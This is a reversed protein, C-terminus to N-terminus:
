QDMQPCQKTEKLKNEQNECKRLLTSQIGRWCVETWVAPTSCLRGSHDRAKAAQVWDERGQTLPPLAPPRAPVALSVSNPSSYFINPCPFRKEGGIKLFTIATNEVWLNRHSCRGTGRHQGTPIGRQLATPLLIALSPM